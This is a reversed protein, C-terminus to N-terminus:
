VVPGESGAKSIAPPKAFEARTHAHTAPKGDVTASKSEEEGGESGGKERGALMLTKVHEPRLLDIQADENEVLAM